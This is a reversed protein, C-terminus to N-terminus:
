RQLADAITSITPLLEAAIGHSGMDAPTMSGDDVAGSIHAAGSPEIHGTFSSPMPLSLGHTGPTRSMLFDGDYSPYSGAEAGAPGPVSSARTPGRVPIPTSASQGSIAAPPPYSSSSSLLAVADATQHNIATQPRAYQRSLTNSAQVSFPTASDYTGDLPQAAEKSTPHLDPEPSSSIHREHEIIIPLDDTEIAVNADLNAVQRCLPCQFMYGAGLLPTVCKYHFCHSCPALFLAQLPAMAGLCICCDTSASDEDPNNPNMAETRGQYDVGLQIIDGSKLPYPRSEKGSPSLRLRNLFSGSSSGVDRFYIQGDKGVWIEAHARSVVKSRFAIYLTSRGAEQAVSDQEASPSGVVPASSASPAAPPAAPVPSASSAVFGASVPDESLSVNNAARQERSAPKQDKGARDVKRGVRLVTGPSIDHEVPNFLFPRNRATQLHLPVESQPFLQLRIVLRNSSSNNNSSSAGASASASASAHGHGSM